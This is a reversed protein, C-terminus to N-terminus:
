CEQEGARRNWADIAKLRDDHWINLSGDSSLNIAIYGNANPATADCETCRVSFSLKCSANDMTGYATQEIKAKSGCFPCRKLQEDMRNM